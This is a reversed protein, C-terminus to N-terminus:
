LSTYRHCRCHCGPVETKKGRYAQIAIVDAIVAQYRLKKGRYAQIAIVDVIVAQYRLEKAGM